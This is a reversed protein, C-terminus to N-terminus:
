RLLMSKITFTQGAAQMRVFYLGSALHSGDFRVNYTGAEYRSDALVTVLRGTIDFVTLKVDASHPLAFRIQTEPNFPNPYNQYLTFDELLASPDNAAAFGHYLTARYHLSDEIRQNAPGFSQSAVFLAFDGAPLATAAYEDRCLFQSTTDLYTQRNNCDSYTFIFLRIPLDASYHVTVTEAHAV